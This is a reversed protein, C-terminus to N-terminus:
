VYPSWGGYMQCLTEEASAEQILVDVQGHINMPLGEKENILGRIKRTVMTLSERPNASEWELLPDYLITELINMLSAENDRLIKGTVECAIRFSGEVGTIGMANVLNPTLRFPVLEPVPLLKGKEFLCEFDIHLVLGSKKFFLINECHRDGLGIIYGVMSMVAASRTFSSRALYWSAPDSFQDILWRHLVPPFERCSRKYFEFLETFESKSKDVLKPQYGPKSSPRQKLFAQLQILKHFIKRDDAKLGLRKRQEVVISKMTAVDTVFEIVGMRDALPIVSYNAIVLNRRRAENSAKLLRNITTTFEVVKADKSTDDNKVMLRYVKMDSGRITVQKPKQLSHFVVINDDFGDFTISSSKSFAVFQKLVQGSSPLRIELNSRVPIVLCTNPSNLSTIQLDNNLSLRKARSNKPVQYSIINIFDEFLSRAATIHDSLKPLKQLIHMVNNKRVVDKSNLHSLIFWLGHKPYMEIVLSIYEALLNYSTEHIHVIRSLLQTISTYWVYKPISKGIKRVDEVMLDLCRLKDKNMKKHGQAFDLWVTILKPLAQFIYSHGIALSTLFNRVLQLEHFGNLDETSDLLRSYFKGLDYYPRDWRDIDLAKIYEEIITSSSSHNSEDLWEAYQLQVEAQQRKNKSFINDNIIDYYSKIAEAQRGQAWLLQAYETSAEPNNLAMARTICKTAIDLRNHDRAIRSCDIFLDGVPEKLVTSTSILGGMLLEFQTSFGQDVNSMRLKQLERREMTLREFIGDELPRVSLDMDFMIHLVNMFSSNRAFSYSLSPALSNGVLEQVKNMSDYFGSKDHEYLSLFSKALEYHVLTEVDAPKGVLDAVHKWKRISPVDGVGSAAELGVMAWEFPLSKLTFSTDSDVLVSLSDLAEEYHGHESLSKLLKTKNAIKTNYDTTDGLAHFSEQALSWNENYQFTELKEKLNNTSFVKLVGNLADYDNINTYMNQLTSVINQGGVVHDQQLHDLSLGRELYLISREYSDCQVAKEALLKTPISELFNIAAQINKTMKKENETKLDMENMYQRASAIYELIYDLVEFISECCNKFLERQDPSLCDVNTQLIQLFEQLIDKENNCIIHSLCVFKLVHSSIFVDEDRILMSCTKFIQAKNAETKNGNMSELNKKLLYSTFRVLWSLYRMSVNHYPIPIKEFKPEPAVYKSSLLPILTSKSVDSFKQWTVVLFDQSKPNLVRADLRMIQLFVQMSYASFLQKIPDNSAWFIKLLKNEIFDILFEATEKYDTFDFLLIINKKISKFQFRNVDLSGMASLVKACSCAIETNKFSNSTDLIERVLCSISDELSPDKFILDQCQQQYKTLYNFLDDLAQQVVYKNKSQLRRTFEFFYNVRKAPKVLSFERIPQFNQISTVFPVSLYYLSYGYDAYNTRIIAFLKRLIGIALKKTESHFSEFKQFILSIIIDFLSLFSQPNLNNVLNSWCDMALYEFEPTELTAQLCTSIQGLATTASEMSKEILYNIARLAGIRELYPKAGKINHVSESFRQVLELVHEDLLYKIRNFDKQSSRSNGASQKMHISSVFELANEIQKKNIFSNSEEDIQIKLLIYWTVEGTNTILEKMKLSRFEPSANALLQIIYQENIEDRVLYYACIRSLNKALLRWKTIKCAEAIEQIYDRKYYELLSPLTYEKTRALFYEPTWNLLEIVKTFMRPRKIVLEAITPMYPSLLKYPTMSKANAVSLFGLYVYNVHQDNLEGLLDILKILLVYLHEGESVIAMEVYCRITSEALHKQNRFDIKSMQAFLSNFTSELQEGKDIILFLPTLRSALFRVDRNRHTLFLHLSPGFSSPSSSNLQPPSYSAFLKYLTLLINSLLLDEDVCRMSLRILTSYLNSFEKVDKIPRRTKSIEMYKNKQLPNPECVTCCQTKFDFTNGHICIFYGLASILTYFQPMLEKIADSTCLSRELNELKAMIKLLNYRGNKDKYDVLSSVRDGELYRLMAFTQDLEIENDTQILQSQIVALLTDKFPVVVYQSNESTRLRNVLSTNKSEVSHCYVIINITKKISPPFESITKSLRGSSTIFDNIILKLKPLEMFSNSVGTDRCLKYLKLLSYSISNVLPKSTSHNCDLMLEGQWTLVASIQNWTRNSDIVLRDTISQLLIVKLDDLLHHSNLELLIFCARRVLNDFQLQWQPLLLYLNDALDYEIFISCLHTVQFLTIYFDGNLNSTSSSLRKLNVDITQIAIQALEVFHKKERARLNLVHALRIIFLRLIPIATPMSSCKRILHIVYHITWVILTTSSSSSAEDPWYGFHVDSQVLLTEMLQPCGRFVTEVTEFLSTLIHSRDCKLVNADVFAFIHITARKLNSLDKDGSFSAVAKSVDELFMHIESVALSKM